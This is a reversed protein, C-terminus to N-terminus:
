DRKELRSETKKYGSPTVLEVVRYPCATFCKNCFICKKYDIHAYLEGQKDFKMMIANSPCIKSCIQCGKCKNACIEPRQQNQKFYMKQKTGSKHLKKSPDFKYVMFDEVVFREIEEAILKYPQKTNIVNRETAQKVISNQVKIGLIDCMAADLSFPNESIGLCNLMRQSKGAELAVIADVVNLVIKNQLLQYIDILYNNFDQLANLRNLMREKIEGQVLGFLNHAVGKLGFQEDVKLKGINIIYDVDNIADMLTLSKAKIGNPTQIEVASFNHNLECNASNAVELMGTTIYLNEMKYENYFKAPSDAVLCEVGRKSLVNVFAQVVAPHTTEARDPSTSCPLCVKLMVKTKSRFIQQMNLRNFCDEVTNELAELNYDDLYKLLVENKM